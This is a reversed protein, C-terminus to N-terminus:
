LIAKCITLIEICCFMGLVKHVRKEEVKKALEIIYMCTLRFVICTM